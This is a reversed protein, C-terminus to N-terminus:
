QVEAASPLLDDYRVCLERGDSKDPQSVFFEACLDLEYGGLTALDVYVVVMRSDVIFRKQCREAVDVIVVPELLIYGGDGLHDMGLSRERVEIGILSEAAM